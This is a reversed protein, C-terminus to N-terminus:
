IMQGEVLSRWEPIQGQCGIQRVYKSKELMRQQNPLDKENLIHNAAFVATVPSFGDDEIQECRNYTSVINVIAPDIGLLALLFAGVENQTFGFVEFEASELSVCKQKATKLVEAYSDSFNHALILRGIDHLLGANRSIDIEQTSCKNHRAIKSALNSVQFSHSSLDALFADTAINQQVPNFLTTKFFLHSLLEFGLLDCASKISRKPQPSGFFSSSVLQLTKTALGVDQCIVGKVRDFSSPGNDFAEALKSYSGKLSPIAEAQTLVRRAPHHELKCQWQSIRDITTQLVESNCPKSLFQHAIGVISLMEEKEAQGSLVLRIVEPNSKAVASLLKVGDIEPMRMDSVIVDIEQLSIQNLADQGGCAFFMQWKDRCRRLM